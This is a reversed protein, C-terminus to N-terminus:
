VLPFFKFKIDFSLSSWQGVKQKIDTENGEQGKSTNAKAKLATCGESPDASGLACTSLPQKEWVSCSQLPKNKKRLSM